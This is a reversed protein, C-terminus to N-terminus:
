DISYLADLESWSINSPSVFSNGLARWPTDDVLIEVAKDTNPYDASNGLLTYLQGDMVLSCRSIGAYRPTIEYEIYADTPTIDFNVDVISHSGYTQFSSSSLAIIDAPSVGSYLRLGCSYGIEAALTNCKDFYAHVDGLAVTDRSWINLWLEESNATVDIVTDSTDLSKFHNLLEGRKLSYEFDDGFASILCGTGWAAVTYGIDPTTNFVAVHEHKGYYGFTVDHYESVEYSVPNFDYEPYKDELYADLMDETVVVFDSSESTIGM